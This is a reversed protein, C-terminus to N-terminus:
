KVYIFENAALIVHCLMSWAGTRRKEADPEQEKLIEAAQTLFIENAQLEDASPERGYALRYLEQQHQTHDSGSALIRQALRDASQMVLDSNMMLLAQPAVTTTARDSSPVAPDPFDLLQFLDYVNNRIVPLYLSRRDSRYDTLDISTHDFLYGRNKVKLLSGGLTRDLQGSVALLSDRVEEAELRRLHMRSFLHNEPDRTVTAESAVSSQQYTASNLILRHLSKISWGESVFRQALWNLLEPHTPAEGLVGFNDTSRVIGTGLHWRWVRNVLVRATMPHNPETLWKALQLRGSQDKSFTPPTVGSIASPTRRPVVDGLKSPNGRLHLAVDVVENETVGMASPLEPIGQELETLEKTLRALEEKISVSFLTELKEPPNADAPLKEKALKEAGTTLALIVEKKADRKAEAAAKQTRETELSLDNEHWLAVKTYTDMTKTSKFIGALAYYDTMEIPDFKHDHCRACGLTLGMFVRGVTELQEDIIDMKMKDIDVEALVKPGISIFGTAVLQEHQQSLGDAPLLDGALQETIFRDYPKDKNFANVVYDRYRWANGHAVNEDLGNSDAYRVTDLWHRGWKEGYAPSDLLRDVMRAYADDREDALFETVEQPTPPLGTLDFTVRRILTLKDAQPAPSLENDELKALIFQDIENKVWAPNKVTPANTNEPPHFSWHNPDRILKDSKPTEPFQAGMEVWKILDAIQEDSLKGNEPMMLAEDTQQVAKILLSEAPKGPLVAPGTDGGKSLGERTDLRLGAFQKKAGHCNNCHEVFIPRIKSEFFRSQEASPQEIQPSEEALIETASHLLIMGWLLGAITIRKM